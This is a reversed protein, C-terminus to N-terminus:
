QFKLTHGMKQYSLSSGADKPAEKVDLLDYRCKAPAPPVKAPDSVYARLSIPTAIPVLEKSKLFHCNEFVCDKTALFVSEPIECGTFRCQSVLFWDRAVENGADTKYDVPTFDIDHFTCHTIKVGIGRVHWTPIFSNSFACNDFIWHSSFYPVSWAGGKEATCEDFLSEKAEFTGGLGTELKCHKFLTRAASLLGERVFINTDDFQTGPLCHLTASTETGKAGQLGVIFRDKLRYTASPLTVEGAIPEAFNVPGGPTSPPTAAPPQSRPAVGPATGARVNKIETDVAVADDLKGAKTLDVKLQELSRLYGIDSQIQSKSAAADIAALSKRLTARYSELIPLVGDGVTRKERASDIESKVISAGDLDGKATFQRLLPDLAVAYKDFLATKQAEATSQLERIGADRQKMFESLPLRSQAAVTSITGAIAIVAFWRLQQRMRHQVFM